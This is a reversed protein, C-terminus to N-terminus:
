SSGAAAGGEAASAEREIHLIWNEAATRTNEYQKAQAFYRKATEVKQDNYSAIGLLLVANGTNRLNGKELAKTLAVAAERWEERQLHVQGLRSYLNGEDSLEAAKRLPPLANEYERAAVWSDALVQYADADAEVLGSELGEELVKAANYPLEHYLYSRALRRIEKDETLYGQKYAIQLVALSDDLSDEARYLLSLQIWYEKKPFRLMLEKLLPIANDYDEKDTYLSYLMRMWNERPENQSLDIAEKVNVIASDTDGMQFYALAKLYVAAPDPEEVYPRWADLWRVVEPWQETQANLQAITFRIKAEDRIPLMELELVKEFYGIAKSPQEATYAVVGLMRYVYALNYPDLRSETLRMLLAEAEPHKDEDLLGAARSLYRSVRKDLPYRRAKVNRDEQLAELDVTAPAEGPQADQAAAGAGFALLALLGVALM